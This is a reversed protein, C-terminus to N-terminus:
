IVTAHPYRARVWADFQAATALVAPPGVGEVRVARGALVLARLRSLEANLYHYSSAAAYDRAEDLAALHEVTVVDAAAPQSFHAM